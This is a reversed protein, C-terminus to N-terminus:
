DEPRPQHRAPERDDADPRGGPQPCRAQSRQGYGGRDAACKPGPQGSRREDTESEGVCVEALAAPYVAVDRAQQAEQETLVGDGNADARFFFGGVLLNGADIAERQSIQDDNNSDALKFVLKATDQLDSISDIPGPLVDKKDDGYCASSALMALGFMSLGVFELTGECSDRRRQNSIERTGSEEQPTCRRSEPGSWVIWDRM